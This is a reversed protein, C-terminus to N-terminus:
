QAVDFNSRSIILSSLQVATPTFAALTPPHQPHYTPDWHVRSIYRVVLSSMEFTLAAEISCVVPSSLAKKIGDTLYPTHVSHIAETTAHTVECM